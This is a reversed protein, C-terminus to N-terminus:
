ENNNLLKKINRFFRRLLSSNETIIEADGRMGNKLVIRKDIKLNKVKGFDITAMFISDRYAIESIHSLNGRIIGFEEYPYSRLKILAKQGVKLKGINFQPIQIEGFFDTNRTNIVFVEQNPVINQNKQIFGAYNVIGDESSRLVYRSVWDDIENLFKKLSQLFKSQEETILQELELLEREKALERGSNALLSAEIQQLPSQAALYKNEQAQFESRSIVMKKYLKKYAEYEIKANQVEQLHMQGQNTIQDRETKIARMEKLLFTRKNIYIGGSLTAKQDLYSQYFDQYPSQLEGLRLNPPLTPLLARGESLVKESGRLILQLSVIDKPDGISELYGLPQDKKVYQGDTVLLSTLKGSQRALITKPANLSNIKVTVNVVEPYQILASAIVISCLIGFALSIGWRLIWAPPITIIDVVEEASAEDPLRESYTVNQKQKKM